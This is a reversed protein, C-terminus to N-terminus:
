ITPPAVDLVWTKSEGLQTINGSGWKLGQLHKPM